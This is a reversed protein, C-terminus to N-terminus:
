RLAQDEAAQIPANAQLLEKIEQVKKRLNEFFQAENQKFEQHHQGYIRSNMLTLHDEFNQMSKM